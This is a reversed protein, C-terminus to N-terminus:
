GDAEELPKEEVEHSSSYGFWFGSMRNLFCHYLNEELSSGRDSAASTSYSQFQSEQYHITLAQRGELWDPTELEATLLGGLVIAGNQVEVSVLNLDATIVTGNELYVEEGELVFDGHMEKQIRREAGDYTYADIYVGSLPLANAGDEALALTGSFYSINSSSGSTMLGESVTGAGGGHLLYHLTLYANQETGYLTFRLAPEGTPAETLAGNQYWYSTLWVSVGDELAQAQVEEALLLLSDFYNISGDQRATESMSLFTDMLAVLEPSLDPLSFAEPPKEEPEAPTPEPETTPEPLTVSPTPEPTYVPPPEPEPPLPLVIEQPVPSKEELGFYDALFDHGFSGSVATVAVAAAAVQALARVAFRQRTRRPKASGQRQVPPHAAPFEEGASFEPCATLNYELDAM